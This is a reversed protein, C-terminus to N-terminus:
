REVVALELTRTEGEAISLRTARPAVAALFDPDGEEGEELYDVAIALYADAPPLGVIRFAGGAGIPARRVYRGSLTRLAPDEPFVIVSHGAAGASARATGSIETVRNTLVVRAAAVHGSALEVPVDIADIGDVTIGKVALTEPLGHVDLRFPGPPTTLEFRGRTVDGATMPGGGRASRATVGIGPPLAGGPPDLALTGRVVAPRGTVLTIGTVDDNGVTLRMEASEDPEGNRLSAYLTYTGPTVDPLTFSGDERTAAGVGLPVGHEGADSMLNLFASAPGGGSQLVAGSVRVRRAPLLQFQALAESGLELSIKQAEALDGTGPFYTPAYVTDVVSDAPAVRLSAAVYYAGPPLGYVRFAGRDDTQDSGGVAELRRTGQIMRARYVTIRANSIPEAREDYVRGAIAGARPIYIDAAVPGGGSVVLPAPKEFARRQGFRWTVYGTKAATLTYEGAPVGRFVFRGDDDTTAEQHAGSTMSALGALLTVQAARVPSGSGAAVVRGTVTAVRARVPRPQQAARQYEPRELGLARAPGAVSGGGPITLLLLAVLLRSM